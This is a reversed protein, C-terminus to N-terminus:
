CFQRVPRATPRADTLKDTVREMARGMRYASENYDSLARIDKFEFADYDLSGFEVPEGRLLPLYVHDLLYQCCDAPPLASGEAAQALLSTLLKLDIEM